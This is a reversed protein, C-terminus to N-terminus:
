STIFRDKHQFQTNMKLSFPFCGNKSISTSRERSFSSKPEPEKPATVIETLVKSRCASKQRWVSGEYHNPARRPRAVHSKWKREVNMPLRWWFMSRCSSKSNLMRCLYHIKTSRFTVSNPGVSLGNYVYHIGAEHYEALFDCFFNRLHNPDVSHTCFACGLMTLFICLRWKMTRTSTQLVNKFFTSWARVLPHFEIETTNPHARCIPKWLMNNFTLM